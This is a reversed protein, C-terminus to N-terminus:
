ACWEAWMSPVLSLLPETVLKGDSYIFREYGVYGGFGNKANYEGCVEARGSPDEVCTGSRCNPHRVVLARFETSEPDRLKATVAAKAQEIVTTEDDARVSASGLLGIALAFAVTQIKLMFNVVFVAGWKLSRKEHRGRGTTM